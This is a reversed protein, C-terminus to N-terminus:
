VVEGIGDEVAVLVHVSGVEGTFLDVSLRANLEGLLLQLVALAVQLHQAASGVLLDEFNVGAVEDENVVLVVLAESQWEDSWELDYAVGAFAVDDDLTAVGGVCVCRWLPADGRVSDVWVTECMLAVVHRGSEEDQERAAVGIVVRSLSCTHQAM